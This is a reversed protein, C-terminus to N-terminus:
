YVMPRVFSKVTQQQSSRFVHTKRMANGIVMAMEYTYGATILCPVYFMRRRDDISTKGIFVEMLFPIELQWTQYGTPVYPRGTSIDNKQSVRVDVLPIQACRM